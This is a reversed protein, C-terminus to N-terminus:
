RFQNARHDSIKQWQEDTIGTTTQDTTIATTHDACDGYHTNDNTRIHWHEEACHNYTRQAAPADLTEVAPNVTFDFTAELHQDVVERGTNDTHQQGNQGEQCDTRQYFCQRFHQSCAHVDHNNMVQQRQRRDKNFRRFDQEEVVSDVVTDERRQTDLLRSFGTFRDEEQDFRVRTRTHADQHRVHEETTATSFM